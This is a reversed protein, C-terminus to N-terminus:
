PRHRRVLRPLRRRRGRAVARRRPAEITFARRQLEKDAMMGLARTLDDAAQSWQRRNALTLGRVWWPGSADPRLKVLRQFVEPQEIMELMLAKRPLSPRAALPLKDIATARFQGGGRGVGAARGGQPWRGYIHVRRGPHSGIGAPPHHAPTSGRAAPLRQDSDQSRPVLPSFPALHVLIRANRRSAGGANGQDVRRHRDGFQAADQTSGRPPRPSVPCHGEACYNTRNMGAPSNEASVLIQDILETARQDDGARLCAAAAASRHWAQQSSELLSEARRLLEARDLVPQSSLCCAHLLRTQVDSCRQVPRIAASVGPVGRM